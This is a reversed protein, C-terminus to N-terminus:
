NGLIFPLFCVILCVQFFFLSCVYIHTFYLKTAGKLLIGKNYIKSMSTGFFLPFVVVCDESIRKGM